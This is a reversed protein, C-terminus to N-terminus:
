KETNSEESNLLNPGDYDSEPDKDEENANESIPKKPDDGIGGLGILEDVATPTYPEDDAELDLRIGDNSVEDDPFLAKHERRYGEVIDNILGNEQETRDADSDDDVGGLQDEIPDPVTMRQLRKVVANHLKENKPLVAQVWQGTVFKVIHELEEVRRREKKARKDRAANRNKRDNDHWIKHAEPDLLERRLNILRTRLNVMGPPMQYEGLGKKCVLIPPRGM